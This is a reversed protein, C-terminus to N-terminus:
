EIIYDVREQAALDTYGDPYRKALKHMNAQITEARALRLNQRVQEMYFEIDGLEEIINTRDILKNYVVLKKVVDMLEGAETVIGTVAHWLDARSPDLQDYIVDGPKKLERVMDSHTSWRDM